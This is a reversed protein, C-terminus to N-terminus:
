VQWTSIENEILQIAQTEKQYAEQRQLTLKNIQEGISYGKDEPIPILVSKINHEIIWEIVSGTKFKLLQAQGLKSKLFAFVYGPHILDPDIKVKTLQESAFVNKYINDFVYEIKGITGQVSILIDSNATTNKEINRTFKRSLKKLDRLSNLNLNQGTILPIGDSVFTRERLGSRNVTTALDGLYSSNNIQIQQIIKKVNVSYFDAELRAENTYKDGNNIEKINVSIVKKDSEFEFGKEIEAIVGNLLRNAEVRLQAADVILQHIEEQQKEPLLPIPLGSLFNPEIHQIVAGFIGQTMLNYGYKSSLFAYMYGSYQGKKPVVRIIHESAAKDEFIENTYATNGVTGSRSILIWDKKLIFGSLNKTNKTSIYKLSNLDAKLMDSSGMFPIGREKDEVYVRRARGGYFIDSTLNGLSDIKYPCKLVQIKSVRGESLHFSADLRLDSDHFWASKTTLIKM